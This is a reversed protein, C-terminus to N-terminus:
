DADIQPSYNFYNLKCHLKNITNFILLKTNLKQYDARNAILLYRNVNSM